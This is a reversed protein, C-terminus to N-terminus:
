GAGRAVVADAEQGAAEEALVARAGHVQRVQVIRPQGVAALLEGDTADRAPYAHLFGAGALLESRLLTM